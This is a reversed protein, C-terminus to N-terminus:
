DVNDTNSLTETINIDGVEQKDIETNNDTIGLSYTDGFNQYNHFIRHRFICINWTGTSISNNIIRESNSFKSFTSGILFILIPFLILPVMIARKNYEKRIKLVELGVFILSPILILLIVGVKTKAFSIPYGLVPISFVEKGIIQDKFVYDLDITNNADGKTIFSIPGNDSYIVDNIRHTITNVVGANDTKDFSIIDGKIYNDTPMVFIMSGTLITPEMSGSMVTFVRFGKPIGLVSLVTLTITIILLFGVVKAFIDIIKITKSKSKEEMINKLTAYFETRM